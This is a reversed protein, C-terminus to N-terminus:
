RAGEVGGVPQCVPLVPCSLLQVAVQELRRVRKAESVRRHADYDVPLVPRSRRPPAATAPSPPPPVVSGPRPPTRRRAGLRASARLAPIVERMAVMPPVLQARRAVARQADRILPRVREVFDRVHELQALLAYPLDFCAPQAFQQVRQRLLIPRQHTARCIRHVRQNPRQSQVIVLTRQHPYRHFRQDVVAEQHNAVARNSQQSQRQAPPTPAASPLALLSAPASPAAALVRLSSTLRAHEVIARARGAVGRFPSQFLDARTATVQSWKLAHFYAAFRRVPDLAKVEGLGGIETPLVRAGLELEWLVSLPRGQAADDLCVLDM